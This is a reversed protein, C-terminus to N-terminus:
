SVHEEGRVTINCSRVQGTDWPLVAKGSWFAGFTELKCLWIENFHFMHFVLGLYGKLACLHLGPPTSLAFHFSRSAQSGQQLVARNVRLVHGCPLQCTGALAREGHQSGPSIHSVRQLEGLLLGPFLISSCPWMFIRWVSFSFICCGNKYPGGIWLAILVLQIFPMTTHFTACCGAEIEVLM